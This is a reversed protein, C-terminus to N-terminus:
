QAQLRSYELVLENYSVVDVIISKVFLTLGQPEPPPPCLEAELLKSHVPGQGRVHSTERSAVQGCVRSGSGLESSGLTDWLSDWVCGGRSPGKGSHWLEAQLGAMGM